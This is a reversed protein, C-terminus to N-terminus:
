PWFRLYRRVNLLQRERGRVRTVENENPAPPSGHKEGKGSMLIAWLVFFAASTITTLPGSVINYGNSLITLANGAAIAGLNGTLAFAHIKANRPVQEPFILTWAFLFGCGIALAAEVYRYTLLSIRFITPRWDLFSFDFATLITGCLCIGIVAPILWAYIRRVGEYRSMTLSWLELAAAISTGIILPATYIWWFAYPASHHDGRLWAGGQILGAVVYAAFWKYPRILHLSRIRVLVAGRALAPFLGLVLYESMGCTGSELVERIQPRFVVAPLDATHGHGALWENGASGLGVFYDPDDKEDYEGQNRCIGTLNLIRRNTNRCILGCLKAAPRRSPM